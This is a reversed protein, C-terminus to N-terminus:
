HPGYKRSREAFAAYGIFDEFKAAEARLGDIADANETQRFREAADRVARYQALLSFGYYLVIAAGAAAEDALAYGPTDVVMVPRSLSARIEKLKPPPLMTPFVMDAGAEAYANLRSITQDLDGLAWAADSRAIILFNPDTRADVAARIRNAVAEKAHLRQPVDAHKGFAHDEIHIACVGAREFDRVTRWLNAADNFGGEADAIVPIGVADAITRAQEVMDPLSLLGTDPLGFRSAATAYSGIYVCPFGAAEILRASLADSAGLAPTTTGSDLLNRLQLRRAGFPDM